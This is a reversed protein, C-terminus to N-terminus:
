ELNISTINWTYRIDTLRFYLVSMFNYCYKNRANKWHTVTSKMIDNSFKIVYLVIRWRATPLPLEVLFWITVKESLFHVTTTWIDSNYLRNVICTKNREWVVCIYDVGNMRISLERYWECLGALKCYYPQM